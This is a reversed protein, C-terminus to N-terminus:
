AEAVIDSVVPVNVKNFVKKIMYIFMITIFTQVFTNVWWSPSMLNVGM